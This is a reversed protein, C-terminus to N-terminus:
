LEHNDRVIDKTFDRFVQDWDGSSSDIIRMNYENAIKKYNNSGSVFFDLTNEPKRKFAIMPDCSLLINYSTFPVTKKLIDLGKINLYKFSVLYDYFFRDFIILNEGFILKVFLYQIYSDIWTLFAWLSTKERKINTPIGITPSRFFGLIKLFKFILNDHYFHTVKCSVGLQNAYDCIGRALTSKGSGDLGIIAISKIKSLKTWAEVHFKIKRVSTELSDSTDITLIDNAKAIQSYTKLVQEHFSQKSTIKNPVNNKNRKISTNEDISLYFILTPKPFGCYLLEVLWNKIKLMDKFTVFYDYIYRDRMLIERRFLIEYYLYECLFEIYVFLPYFLQVLFSFFTLQATPNKEFFKIRKYDSFMKKGLLSRLLRISIFDDEKKIAVNKGSFESFNKVEKLLTSKGSGSPGFFAIIM